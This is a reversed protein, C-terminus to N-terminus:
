GEPERSGGATEADEERLEALWEPEAAWEDALSRLKRAGEAPGLKENEEALEYLFRASQIHGDMSSQALANAIELSKEQLVIDAAVRMESAGGIRDPQQETEQKRPSDMVVLKRKAESMQGGNGSLGGRLQM